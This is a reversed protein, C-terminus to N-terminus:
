GINKPTDNETDSNWKKSLEITMIRIRFLSPNHSQDPKCHDLLDKIIKVPQLDTFQIQLQVKRKMQAM